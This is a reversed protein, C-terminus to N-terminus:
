ILEEIAHIYNSNSVDHGAGVVIKVQASKLGDTVKYRYAIDPWKPLEQDGYILIIKSHIKKVLNVFSLRAFATVRRHGIQKLWSPKMDRNNLDEIFYPSLSFLWLESPSRKVASMFATVAGFSFGALITDKPDYKAYIVDLEATWDNITTRKWQIDVFKVKYGKDEIASITSTYDRDDIDEDFGPVFLVTKM